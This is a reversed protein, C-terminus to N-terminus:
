KEAEKEPIFGAIEVSTHYNATQMDNQYYLIGAAEKDLRGVEETGKLVWTKNEVGVKMVAGCAPCYMSKLFVHEACISCRITPGKIILGARSDDIWEGRVVPRVDAAPLWDLEAVPIVYEHRETSYVKKGKAAEREIYEAM